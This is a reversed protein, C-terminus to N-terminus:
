HLGKPEIAEPDQNLYLQAQVSSGDARLWRATVGSIAVLTGEGPITEGIAVRLRRGDPWELLAVNRRLGDGFIGVLRPPPALSVESPLTPAPQSSWFPMAQLTSQASALDATPMPQLSWESAAAGESGLSRPTTGLLVFAVAGLVASLMGLRVLPFSLAHAVTRRAHLIGQRM